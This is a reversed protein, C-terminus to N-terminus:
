KKKKLEFDFSNEGAATVDATLTSQENYEKPIYSVYNPLGDPAPKDAVKTATILVKKKGPFCEFLFKGDTISGADAPGKGDEPEFIIEGTEIPTGEFTVTGTVEHKGSGCGFMATSLLLVSLTAAFRIFRHIM